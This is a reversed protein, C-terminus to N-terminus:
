ASAKAWDWDAQGQKVDRGLRWATRHSCPLTNKDVLDLRRTPPRSASSSMMSRLRHICLRLTFLQKLCSWCLGDQDRDRPQISSLPTTQECPLYLTQYVLVASPM